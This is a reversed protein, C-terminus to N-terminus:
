RHGFLRARPVGPFLHQGRRVLEVCEEAVNVDCARWFVRRVLEVDDALGDEPMCVNVHVVALGM